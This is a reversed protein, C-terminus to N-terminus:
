GCRKPRQRHADQAVQGAGQSGTLQSGVSGWKHNSIRSRRCALRGRRLQGRQERSADAQVM